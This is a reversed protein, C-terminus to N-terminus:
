YQSVDYEGDTIDVKVIGDKEYSKLKPDDFDPTYFLPTAKNLSPFNWGGDKLMGGKLMYIGDEEQKLKMKITKADTTSTAEKLVKRIEERILKRLEQTKM